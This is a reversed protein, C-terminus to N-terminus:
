RLTFCSRKAGRGGGRGQRIDCEAPLAVPGPLAMRALTVAPCELLAAVHPDHDLSSYPLVRLHAM